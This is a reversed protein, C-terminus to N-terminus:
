ATLFGTAGPPTHADLAAMVAAIARDGAAHGTAVVEEHSLPGSMGAAYNTVMTLGCVHMRLQRAAIVECVTSMGVLDAGMARVMGIEAPTEYSPGAMAVYVGTGAVTGSATVADRWRPDYAASMDVFRDGGGNGDGALPNAGTLNIHDSIAVISGPPWHDHVSAAANTVILRTCGALAATRVAAVIDGVGYGEYLHIRGAFVVVDGSPHNALHVAGGHGAVKPTPLGIVDFPVSGSAGLAEPLHSLGSGCIVATRPTVGLRDRLAAARRLDQDFVGATM